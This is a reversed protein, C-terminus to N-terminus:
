HKKSLPTRTNSQFNNSINEVKDMVSNSGVMNSDGDSIFSIGTTVNIQFIAVGVKWPKESYCILCFGTLFSRIHWTEKVCVSINEIEKSGCIWFDEEHQGSFTLVESALWYGSHHCNSHTWLCHYQSLHYGLLCYYHYEVHSEKEVSCCYHHM